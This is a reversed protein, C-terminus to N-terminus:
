RVEVKIWKAITTGKRPNVEALMGFKLDAFTGVTNTKKVSNRDLYIVTHHVMVFWKTFNGDTVAILGTQTATPRVVATIRGMASLKGSVGPSQGIPIYVEVGEGYGTLCVLMALLSWIRKM